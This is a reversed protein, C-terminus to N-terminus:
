IFAWNWPPSSLKNEKGAQPSGATPTTVTSPRTFTINHPVKKVGSTYPHGTASDIWNELTAIYNSVTMITGKLMDELHNSPNSGGIVSDPIAGLDVLLIQTFSSCDKLM